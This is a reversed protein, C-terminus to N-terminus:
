CAPARPAGSISDPHPNRPPLFSALQGYDRELAARDYYWHVPM